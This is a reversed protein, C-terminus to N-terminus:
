MQAKEPRDELQEPGAGEVLRPLPNEPTAGMQIFRYEDLKIDDLGIQDFPNEMDAQVNYLSILVFGHLVSLLYIVWHPTTDLHHVITPTFVIPFVFVFVLCYARLSVPTGHLQLSITNEMSEHIDQLFRIIKMTASTSLYDRRDKIFHIMENVRREAAENERANTRLNAFFLEGIEKLQGTVYNKDEQSMKKSQEFAYHVSFMASKFQSLFRLAHDRRKFAERITFVLPFVVAISFLTVNLSYGFGWELCIYTVAVCCFLLAATKYDLIALYKYM